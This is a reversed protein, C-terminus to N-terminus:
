LSPNPIAGELLRAQWRKRHSCTARENNQQTTQLWRLLDDPTLKPKPLLAKVVYYVQPRTLAPM